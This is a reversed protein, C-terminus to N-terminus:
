AFNARIASLVFSISKRARKVESSSALKKADVTTPDATSYLSISEASWTRKTANSGSSSDGITKKRKFLFKLFRASVTVDTAELADMAM